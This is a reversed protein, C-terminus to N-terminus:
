KFLLLPSSFYKSNVPFRRQVKVRIRNGKPQETMVLSLSSKCRCPHADQTRGGAWRHRLQYLKKFARFRYLFLLRNDKAQPVYSGASAQRKRTKLLERDIGFQLQPGI